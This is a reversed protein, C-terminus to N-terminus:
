AAGMGSVQEAAVVWAICTLWSTQLLNYSFLPRLAQFM